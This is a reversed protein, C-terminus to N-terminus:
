TLSATGTDAGSRALRDRLAIVGPYAEAHDLLDHDTLGAPHRFTIAHDDPALTLLAYGVRKDGIREQVADPIIFATSPMWLHEVGGRHLRRAQHAHGSIVFRLDVRDLLALLRARPAAPVYRVHIETDDPADRFLPKHLFLGVPRDATALAADLWAFQDAEADLGSGLLQANIGILRFGALDRQWRDPGFAADYAALRAPLVLSSVAMGPAPPNDGLDHNGPVALLPAHLRALEALAQTHEAPDGAGDVTIDGLHVVLDPADANILGALVRWNAVFATARDALHTDSVLAIRM